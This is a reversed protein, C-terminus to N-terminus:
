RRPTLLRVGRVISRWLYVFSTSVLIITSTTLADVTVLWRGFSSWIPMSSVGAVAIVTWDLVGIELGVPSTARGVGAMARLVIGAADLSGARFPVWLLVLALLVYGRRAAVPLRGLWAALGAREVAVLVGHSAAWVAVTWGPGHWLGLCAFLLLVQRVRRWAGEDAPDVAVGLYGRCWDLLSINWRRWFDTLTSAGYPWRFNEFLRFGYMRGFGIAMDAYGSLDFYIQLGFCVAGLWAQGAGLEAASLGFVQDAPAGLVRAFLAVKCYGVLWRRMGYSFGALTVRRDALQRGMEGYRVLPGACLLPFFLLYVGARIPSRQAPLVGRFVDMVYSTAHCVVFTLGLPALLQPMAFGAGAFRDPLPLAFKIVVLLAVNAFLAVTLLAEPLPTQRGTVEVRRRLGDIGLAAGYNVLALAVLWRAMDGAGAVLFCVSSALLVTNAATFRRGAERWRRPTLALALFFATLSAPLFRLLFVPDTFLV